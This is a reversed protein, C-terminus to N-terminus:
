KDIKLPVDIEGLAMRVIDGLFIMPLSQENATEALMNRCVYCLYVLAWAGSDKADLINKERDKKTDGMNYMLKPSSCCLAGERDYKREVRKVGTLDFIEDIMEEKDPALRSSCPRQYAIKLNLPKIKKRHTRLYEVLYEAFHIPRFPVKINFDPATKFLTMYCGVHFCVVEEAGTQALRDVFTQTHRKLVSVAGMHWFFDWCFFPKGGVRLLNYLEGQLLNAETKEYICAAMIRKTHPINKIEGTFYYKAETANVTDESVKSRFKEQLEAHLDFPNAKKPCRENCAYCTICQDLAPSHEGAVMAKQWVIAQKREVNMWQCKVLCNGCLTCLDPKFM